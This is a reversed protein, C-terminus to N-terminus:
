FFWSNNKRVRWWATSGADNKNQSEMFRREAAEVIANIGEEGCSSVLEELLLAGVSFRIFM